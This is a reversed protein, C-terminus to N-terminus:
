QPRNRVWSEINPLEGVRQRLDALSDELEFKELFNELIECFAFFFLDAWSLANGAFYQGGRGALRKALRDFMETASERLRMVLPHKSEEDKCAMIAPIHTNMLDTITDVIEDAQARELNNRGALNYENALFRQFFLCFTLHNLAGGKFKESPFKLLM